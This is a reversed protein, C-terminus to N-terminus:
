RDLAASGGTPAGMSGDRPATGCNRKVTELFRDLDFPKALAERAGHRRARGLSITDASMAIVPMTRGREALHRLVGIGDVQPLNMDLVMLCFDESAAGADLLKIAEVGNRAEVVEYGEDRLVEALFCRVMPTDEVLIITGARVNAV